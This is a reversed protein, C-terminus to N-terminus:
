VASTSSSEHSRSQNARLSEARRKRMDVPERKAMGLFTREEQVDTPPPLDAIAKVKDPDVEIRVLSM